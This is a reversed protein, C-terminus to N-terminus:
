VPDGRHVVVQYGIAAMSQELSKCSEAAEDGTCIKNDYLLYKKRVSLPSLNPMVVNAGARIGMERGGPLITGLATTAPLLVQPLLLRVVGLLFVTLEATGAPEAAFPTDGHPIFPGLGVMHPQLEQLFLLDKVLTDVTQGPSGVMFGCGVQFGIAKLEWLCRMRNELSLPRPHLRSYHAEDATEHRLLFRNAGAEYFRQYSERSREGISLTIACDPWGGRIAQIMDAMREDTYYGDEGGQLVFTRFGLKYGAECCELIEEKTLRYRSAKHNSCRIGCYYCDNKCYNTFEILGRIFVQNGYYRRRVADAKSFLYADLEDAGHSGSEAGMRAALLTRFQQSSLSRDRELNDVLGKLEALQTRKEQQM